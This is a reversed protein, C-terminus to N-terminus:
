KHPNSYNVQTAHEISKFLSFAIEWIVANGYGRISERYWKSKSITQTDLRGAIGDDMGCLRTAAEIWSERKISNEFGNWWGRSAGTISLRQSKDNGVHEVSGTYEDWDRQRKNEESKIKRKASTDKKFGNINGYGDRNCNAIFFWRQRIHDKDTACAPINVPTVEYGENELDTCVREFVLPHKNLLGPVNEAVVFRPRIERILRMNEPWIFRDDKDGEGKGAVSFPQCPFGCTIIDIAGRFPRGDMTFLNTFSKANPWYYKLLTLCFENIECHAVNEWNMKEAAYDFCGIGSEM